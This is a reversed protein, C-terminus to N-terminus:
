RRRRKRRWIISLVAGLISLRMAWTAPQNVSPQRSPLHTGDYRIVPNLYIVLRPAWIITRIYTDDPQFTYSATLVDRVTKRIVGNQGFFEFAPIAGSCTITLTGDRFAVNDVRTVPANPTDDLRMVAYFHGGRLADIVDSQSSTPSSIMNWAMAFRRPESIDHSDDNALGWVTHGSSLAVDWPGHDGFPGNVVEMLQYNGLQRLNHSSYANRISPHALAVLDAKQKVLDIVLQEQSPFPGFPFDFWEIGRAGIALQHRKDLNYGHEYVPFAPGTAPTYIRQYNSLGIVGYDLRQYAAVVEEDSQSGSTLGVWSQSHAHFNARQWPGKWAAYPNYFQAGTFPVAAPFRYIPSRAYPLALVLLAISIIRKM